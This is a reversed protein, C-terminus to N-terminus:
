ITLPYNILSIQIHFNFLSCKSIYNIATLLSNCYMISYNDMNLASNSTTCNSNSTIFNSNSGKWNYNTIKWNSNLLKCNSNPVKWNSNPVKWNSNSDRFNSNSESWNPNSSKLSPNFNPNNFTSFFISDSISTKKLFYNIWVEVIVQLSNIHSTISLKNTLVALKSNSRTSLLREM